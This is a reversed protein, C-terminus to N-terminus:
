QQKQGNAGAQGSARSLLKNYKEVKDDYKAIIDAYFANKAEESIDTSEILEKALLVVTRLHKLKKERFRLEEEISDGCKTLSSDYQVYHYGVYDIAKATKAKALLYPTIAFDELMPVDPFSVGDYLKRRICYTWPLTNIKDIGCIWEVLAEEGSIVSTPECCFRSPSKGAGIKSRTGPFLEAVNQFRVVDVDDALAIEIQRLLDPEVYDDPDVFIIYDGTARKILENRNKGIELNHSNKYVRLRPDTAAFSQLVQLSRDTSCDDVAVIEFDSESQGFLSEICKSVYQEKNYVPVLFSFKPM